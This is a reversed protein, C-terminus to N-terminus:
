DEFIDGLEYAGKRSRKAEKVADNLAKVVSPYADRFRSKTDVRALGERVMTVNISAEHSTSASPDAPDFLSLHLLNTDRADINAVLQRGECLERFLDKSDLGYETEPGLLNIFSLTAEKAQGDLSKFQPLLPRLRSFSITESNGYDIYSIEATKAAPNVRRLKGRYWANDETFQAAVLDNTRPIFNAPAVDSKYQSQLEGMLAELAPIGGSPSLIQVAFSFPEERVDSVVLDVYERRASAPAAAVGRALDDAEADFNKWM